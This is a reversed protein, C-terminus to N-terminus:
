ININFGYEIFRIYDEYSVVFWETGNVRTYKNDMINHWNNEAEKVDNPNIILTDICVAMPNMGKYTIIRNHLNTSSMGIKILFYRENLRTPICVVQALMYLGSKNPYIYDYDQKLTLNYKTLDTLPALPAIEKQKKYPGQEGAIWIYDNEDDYLTKIQRNPFPFGKLKELLKPNTILYDCLPGKKLDYNINDYKRVTSVSCGIIEAEQARTCELGYNKLQWLIFPVEEDYYIM